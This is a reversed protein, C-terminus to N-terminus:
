GWCEPLRYRDGFVRRVGQSEEDGRRQRNALDAGMCSLAFRKGYAALANLDEGDVSRAPGNELESMTRDFANIALAWAEVRDSRRRYAERMWFVGEYFVDEAYYAAAEGTGQQATCPSEGPVTIGFVIQTM